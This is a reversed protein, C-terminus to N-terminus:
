KKRLRMGPGESPIIFGFPAGSEIMNRAMAVMHKTVYVSLIDYFSLLVLLLIAITPSIAMGLMSAIGAIGVIVGINHVLVSRFFVFVLTMLLAALLDWPGDVVAGAIIQAGAFVIFILFFRFSFKAVRKYKPAFVFFSIIIILILADWFSFRIEPLQVANPMMSYRYATFIGVALTASFLLSEKFFLKPRFKM